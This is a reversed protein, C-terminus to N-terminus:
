CTGYSAREQLSCSMDSTDATFMDAAGDDGDCDFLLGMVDLVTFTNHMYHANPCTNNKSKRSAGAVCCSNRASHFLLLCALLLIMEGHGHSGIAVDGHRKLRWDALM